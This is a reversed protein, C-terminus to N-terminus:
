LPTGPAETGPEGKIDFEVEAVIPPSGQTSIVVRWHGASEPGTNIDALAFNKFDHKDTGFFIPTNFDSMRKLTGDKYLKITFTSPYTSPVSSAIIVKGTVPEGPDFTKKDVQIELKLQSSASWAWSAFLLCLLLAQLGTFINSRFNGAIANKELLVGDIDLGLLKKMKLIANVFSFGACTKAPLPKVQGAL